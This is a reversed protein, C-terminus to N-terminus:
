SGNKIDEPRPMSIINYGADVYHIEGTVAGSLDSLLYLGAGGVDEITLSRRLPAHDRTFSFMFRADGIWERLRLIRGGTDTAAGTDVLHVKWAPQRSEHVTTEGSALDITLNNNLAFFNLFYNKVIEQKYGLAVVFERFGHAAYINMIHWLMPKGGIEVMPKPLSTTEEALRTGLGGALILYCLRLTYLRWLAVEPKAAPSVIEASPVHSGVISNM